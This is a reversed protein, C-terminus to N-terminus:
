TSHMRRGHTRIPRISLATLRQNANFTLPYAGDPIPYIRIQEAFYAYDIPISTVVAPNVSIEELYQWTRAYLTYRNSNVLIHIKDIKPLTAIAANDSVTYFEQNAVTSFLPSAYYENFYFPEREWLAIASQIANQIPSTTLASDALPTLLDQRDGLEDAIMQQMILYTASISM